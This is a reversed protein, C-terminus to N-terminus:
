GDEPSEKGALILVSRLLEAMGQLLLTVVFVLILSKLLYVLPLGGPDSSTEMIRWSRSVYDFSMLGIFLCVPFLLFLTGLGNVWGRQRASMRNYFVDVRVHGGQKLTYSSAGLFILAHFYMALEQLAISGSNFWYRLVVVLCVSVVLLLNFGSLLRGFRETLGDIGAVATRIMKWGTTM